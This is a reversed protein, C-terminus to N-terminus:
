PLAKQHERWLSVRNLPNGFSYILGFLRTLQVLSSLAVKMLTTSFSPKSKFKSWTTKGFLLLTSKRLRASVMRSFIALSGSCSCAWRNSDSKARLFHYWSSSLNMSFHSFFFGFSFCRQHWSSDFTKLVLVLLSRIHLAFLKLDEFLFFYRVSVWSSILCTRILIFLFFM